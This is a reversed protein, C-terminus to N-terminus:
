IQPAGHWGPHAPCADLQQHVCHMAVSQSTVCFVMGGPATYGEPPIISLKGSMVKTGTSAVNVVVMVDDPCPGDLCSVSGHLVLKAQGFSLDHIPEGLVTVDSHTPAVVLGKAKDDASVYPAVRYRGPPVIFCFKNFDDALTHMNLGSGDVATLTVKKSNRKFHLDGYVLRGCVGVKNVIIDPLVQASPTIAVASLSSFEYDVKEASIDTRGEQMRALVYRCAVCLLLLLLMLLL